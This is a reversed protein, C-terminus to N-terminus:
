RPNASATAELVARIEAADINRTNVEIQTGNPHRLKIILSPERSLYAKLCGILAKVAGSTVLALTLVGLTIPEGREGPTPTVEATQVGIGERTLDRELDRTLRAIRTAPVDSSLNITLTTESHFRTM